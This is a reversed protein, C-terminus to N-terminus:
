SRTSRCPRCGPDSGRGPAAATRRCSCASSPALTSSRPNKPDETMTIAVQGKPISEGISRFNNGGDVSAYVYNNYDDNGHNDVTVYVTNPNHTSAVLGSIYGGKPMNPLKATLNTWTKGGDRTM